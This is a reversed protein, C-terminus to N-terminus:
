GALRSRLRWSSPWCARSWGGRCSSDRGCSRGTPSGPASPCRTAAACSPSAPSSRPTASACRPTTGPLSAIAGRNRREAGHQRYHLVVRPVLVGGLDQAALALLLDWDEYGQQRRLRRRPRPGRAPVAVLDDLPQRPAPDLPEVAAPARAVDLDGFFRVWGFAFAAAPDRDLADALAALSGAEVLDDSNLVFVYPATAAATGARLAASVGANAQRLLRVAGAGALEDLVAITSPDRSGDDVVVIEVPEAERVSAVADGVTAGDDYCPVVVSIRPAM